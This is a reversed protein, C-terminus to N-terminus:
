LVFADFAGSKIGLFSRNYSLNLLTIVHGYYILDFILPLLFFFLHIIAIFGCGFIEAYIDHNHEYSSGAIRCSNINYAKTSAPLLKMLSAFASRPFQPPQYRARTFNDTRVGVSDSFNFRHMLMGM